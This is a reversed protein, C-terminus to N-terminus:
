ISRVKKGPTIYYAIAYKLSAELSRDTHLCHQPLTEPQISGQSGQRFPPQPGHSLSLSRPHVKLLTLSIEVSIAFLRILTTSKNSSQRREFKLTLSHFLEECGTVLSRAEWLIENM